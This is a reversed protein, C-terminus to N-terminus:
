GSFCNSNVFKLMGSTENTTTRKMTMNVGNGLRFFQKFFVETNAVNINQTYQGNEFDNKPCFIMASPTMSEMTEISVAFTTQGDIFAEFTNWVQWILIGVGSLFVLFNFFQKKKLM